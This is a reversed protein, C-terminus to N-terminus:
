PDRRTMDGEWPPPAADDGLIRMVVPRLMASLETVREPPVVDLVLRRVEAVHSPAARELLARGQRTLTVLTTRGDQPDPSRDVLGRGQMKSVAHSLRSLSGNTLFSLETMRHCGGGTEGLMALVYYEFRSLSHDRRLQADIAAPLRDSITLLALWAEMETANLWAPETM